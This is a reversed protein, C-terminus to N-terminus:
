FGSTSIWYDNVLGSYKMLEIMDDIRNLQEGGSVIRFGNNKRGPIVDSDSM